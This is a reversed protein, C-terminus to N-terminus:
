SALTARVWWDPYACGIEVAAARAQDMDPYIGFCGAGSGSMRALACGSTAAIADLADSIAPELSRAVPELDNRTGSLYDVVAAPTRLWDAGLKPLPPNSRETLARFVAPTSVSRGPWVLLMSLPPMGPVAEIADGVGGALLARSHVCMAIDAGLPAGIGALERNSLGLDWLTNLAILVTAADASGGGFGTGAPIEKSLAIAAGRGGNGAARDLALAARWGLNEPGGPAHAAFPGSVELSLTDARSVSVADGLDAFVVLSELDHYGDPRQATVHLALNIKAAALWRAPLAPM